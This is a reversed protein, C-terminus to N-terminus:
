LGRRAGPVAPLELPEESKQHVGVRLNPPRAQGKEKERKPDAPVAPQGRAAHAVLNLRLVFVTGDNNLTLLHRGEPTVAIARIPVGRPAIQLSKVLQPQELPADPEWISVVGQQDAFYLYRGNPSYAIDRGFRGTDPLPEIPLWDKEELTAVDFLTINKRTAVAMVRDDPRLAFSFADVAAATKRVERGTETDWLAIPFGAPYGPSIPRLSVLQKPNSGFHIVFPRPAEIPVDLRSVLVDETHERKEGKGTVEEIRRRVLNYVRLGRENELLALRKGDSSLSSYGATPFAISQTGIVKGDLVSRLDVHEHHVTVLFARGDPAFQTTFRDGVNETFLTQRKLSPIHWLNVDKNGGWTPLLVSEGTPSVNMVSSHLKRENADEDIIAVLEAPTAKVDEYGAAKLQNATIDERKLADAPWPLLPLFKWVLEAEPEGAHAVKYDLLEQRLQVLDAHLPDILKNERVRKVLAAFEKSLKSADPFLEDLTGSALTGRPLSQKVAYVTLAVRFGVDSGRRTPIFACRNRTRCYFADHTFHGGRIVRWSSGSSPGIPDIAPKGDFQMYYTPAWGDQVWECVNGHLDFLGLPNAKLGGVAHTLAGSNVAFWDTLVLDEDREGLWFKTTTGTRCAFEWEGETPLRYGTGEM